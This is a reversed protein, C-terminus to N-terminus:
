GRAARKIPKDLNRALKARYAIDDREAQLRENQTQMLAEVLEDLFVLASDDGAGEMLAIVHAAILYKHAMGLRMDGRALATAAKRAAFDAVGSYIAHDDDTVTQRAYPSM